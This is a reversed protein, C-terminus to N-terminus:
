QYNCREVDGDCIIVIFIMEVNTYGVMSSLKNHVLALVKTLSPVVDFNQRAIDLM